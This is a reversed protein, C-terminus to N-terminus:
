KQIDSGDIRKIEYLKKILIYPIFVWAFCALLIWYSHRNAKKVAYLIEKKTYEGKVKDVFLAELRYSIFYCAIFLAILLFGPLLVEELISDSDRNHPLLSFPGFIIYATSNDQWIFPFWLIMGILTTAINGIWVQKKLKNRNIKPLYKRLDIYETSVVIWLPLLQIIFAGLIFLGVGFVSQYNRSAGLIFGGLMSSLVCPFFMFVPIGANAYCPTSFLCLFLALLLFKKMIKRMKKCIIRYKLTKCCLIETRTDGFM